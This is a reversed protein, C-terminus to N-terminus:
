VRRMLFHRADSVLARDLSRQLQDANAKLTELVDKSPANKALKLDFSRIVDEIDQGFIWRNVIECGCLDAFFEITSDTFVKNHVFGDFNRAFQDEFAQELLCSFGFTPVSFLFFKGLKTHRIAESVANLDELHELVFFAIFVDFVGDRIADTIEVNSSSVFKAYGLSECVSLLKDDREVGECNLSLDVASAVFGGDGCGYEFFTMKSSDLQLTDLSNILWELKPEHVSERREAFRNSNLNDSYVEAFDIISDDFLEITQILACQVCQNVIYSRYIFNAIPDLTASCLSCTTRIGSPAGRSSRRRSEFREKFSERSRDTFEIQKPFKKSFRTIM